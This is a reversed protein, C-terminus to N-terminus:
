KAAFKALVVKSADSLAVTYFKDVSIDTTRSLTHRETELNTDRKLYITLAPTEDESETDSTLKVIPCIYVSGAAFKKYYTDKAFTPATSGSVAAYTDESKTYYSKYKTSWDSPEESLLEYYDSENLGAKKSPVIRCNAIKGVEGTMVVEGTYKDASIFNEDKRLQTLQKPNIFMVKETNVEENFVDIAEVVGNYSIISDSSKSLTAQRLANMADEDIKAAISVALQNNAEGVPNGYGSLIAEDTIAVAKMAKKIKATTTTATLKATEVSEGEAVEGADGIYAYKPITITDGPVGQLKTDVRAFPTVVIKSAIKASIMDAMVQPNIIDSIKTIENSM